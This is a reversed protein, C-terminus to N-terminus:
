TVVHPTCGRDRSRKRAEPLSVSGNVLLPVVTSLREKRRTLSVTSIVNVSTPLSSTDDPCCVIVSCVLTPIRYSHIHDFFFAYRALHHDGHKIDHHNSDEHCSTGRICHNGIGLASSGVLKPCPCMLSCFAPYLIRENTQDAVGSIRPFRKDYCRTFRSSNGYRSCRADNHCGGTCRTARGPLYFRCYLIIISYQCYKRPFFKRLTGLCIDVARATM